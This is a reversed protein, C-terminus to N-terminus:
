TKSVKAVAAAEQAERAAAASDVMTIPGVARFHFQPRAALAAAKREPAGKLFEANRIRGRAKRKLKAALSELARATALLEGTEPDPKDGRERRASGRATIIVVEDDPGRASLYVAKAVTANVDYLARVDVHPGQDYDM